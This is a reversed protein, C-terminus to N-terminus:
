DEVIEVRFCFEQEEGDEDKGYAAILGCDDFRFTIVDGASTTEQWRGSQTLHTRIANSIAAQAETVTM